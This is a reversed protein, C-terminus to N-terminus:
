KGLAKNKPNEKWRQLAKTASGDSEHVRLHRKLRRMKNDRTRSRKVSDRGLKKNKSSRKAKAKNLGGAM